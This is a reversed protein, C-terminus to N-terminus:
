GAIPEADKRRPSRHDASVRRQARGREATAASEWQGRNRSDYGTPAFVADALADPIKGALGVGGQLDHDASVAIGRILLRDLPPARRQTSWQPNDRQGSVQGQAFHKTPEAPDGVTFQDRFDVVVVVVTRIMDGVEHKSPVRTPGIEHRLPRAEDVQRVEVARNVTAPRGRLCEIHCGGATREHKGSACKRLGTAPARRRAVDIGIERGTNADAPSDGVSRVSELVDVNATSTSMGPFCGQILQGPLDPLYVFAQRPLDDVGGRVAYRRSGSFWM